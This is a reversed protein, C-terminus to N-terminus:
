LRRGRERAKEEIFRARAAGTNAVGEAECWAVLEDVDVNLREVETGANSLTNITREVEALWERYTSHLSDADAATAKLRLWDRLSYWGIAVAIGAGPPMDPKPHKM